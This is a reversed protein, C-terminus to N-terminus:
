QGVAGAIEVASLVLEVQERVSRRPRRNERVGKTVASESLGSRRAMEARSLPTPLNSRREDLERWTIRAM